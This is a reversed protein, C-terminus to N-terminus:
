SVHQHEVLGVVDVGRAHDGAHLRRGPGVVGAAGGAVIGVGLMRLEGLHDDRARDLQEAVPRSAQRSGLM